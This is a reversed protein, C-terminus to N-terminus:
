RRHVPPPEHVTVVFSATSVNGSRDSAHCTVTTSGVTFLTGSAPACSVSPSRDVNDAASVSYKVIAGHSSTTSVVVDKPTTLKPAITDKLDERLDEPVVVTTTKISSTNGAADACTVGILYRREHRRGEPQADVDLSLPGTIRWDQDSPREPGRDDRDGPWRGSEDSSVSAIQCTPNATVLDSAVVALTVLVLRRDPPGLPQLSPTVSAIAPPTTDRVNVVFAGTSTNGSNDAATCTVTTSGIAFLSGSSPACSVSPSPDINDVAAAAYTVAAGQASTAEAVVVGAPLTLTPPVADKVVAFYTGTLQALSPSTQDNVTVQICAPPGAVYTQSSVPQWATANFWVIRDTPAPSGGCWNFTVQTFPTLPDPQAFVDFYASGASFGAAPSSAYVAATLIGAGEDTSVSLDTQEGSPDTSLSVTPDWSQSSGSTEVTTAQDTVFFQTVAQSPGSRNYNSVTVYAVGPTTLDEAPITVTLDTSSVYIAALSIGNWQVTTGMTDVYCQACQVPPCNVGCSPVFGSGHIDITVPGSGKVASTHDLSQISPGPNDVYVVENPVTIAYNAAHGNPDNFVLQPVYAGAPFSAPETEGVGFDPNRQGSLTACFLPTVFPQGVTQEGYGDDSGCVVPAPAVMVQISASATSYNPTASATARLTQPGVGNMFPSPSYTIFGPPAPGSGSVSATEQAGSLFRDYAMPAPSTPWTVTQTGPLVTMTVDAAAAAYYDTAAAFVHLTQMGGNLVAGLAPTYTLAGTAQGGDGSVTANLRSADLAQPYTLSAPANWTIHQAGPNVCILEATSATTYDISDAPTFSAAINYCGPALVTGLAPNYTFTGPVNATVFMQDESLPTPYSPSPPRQGFTLTPTAQTITITGPVFDIAYNQSTLGGPTIGHPGVQAAADATTMFTLSGGLAAASEGNVFGQYSVPYPTFNATGYVRTTNGAKVTLAAPTVSLTGTTYTIDYASSSLGFPTVTYTGVPSAATASTAYGLVGTIQDETGPALGTYVPAPLPNPSGYPRSLPATAVVLAGKLVTLQGTEFDVFYNAATLGSAIVSYQGPPTTETATTQFVPTGTLASPGDGNRFGQYSLTFAPNPQGFLKTANNPTVILNVPVIQITTPVYTITYNASTLGGLTVPYTGAGTTVDPASFALTGGLVQPGDNLVFGSYTASFAPNPDGYRRGQPHVATVTLPVPLVTLTGPIYVVSYNPSRLGSALITYAGASSTDVATTSFTLTGALGSADDNGHFGSYSVSFEPNAQGYNKEASSVSVTLRVANVTLTGPLFQIAYNTSAVGSPAISYTGGAFHTSASPTFQLTGSLVSPTEGLVFGGYSVAFAPTDGYNITANDAQITLPAPAVTLTGPRIQLNYNAASVNGSLAVAYQGAPSSDTAGTSFQWNGILVSQDEGPLFGSYTVMGATFAPNSQGYTKTAAPGIVVLPIKQITVTGPLFTIDYALSSVGFPTMTHAGAAPRISSADFLFQVTGQLASADQGLVFGAYSATAQPVSDGYNLTTSSATITLPAKDITLTAPHYTIAYNAAPGDKPTLTYTGPLSADTAPTVVTAGATAPTDAAVLGAYQVPYSAPYGYHRTVDQATISLPAKTITLAGPAFAIAYNTSSLGAPTLQYQGAGTNVDPATFTLVGGLATADQNLVFGGYTAQFVPNPAGYMRTADLATVTLPAPTVSLTGARNILVTFNPSSVGPTVVYSGVDSSPTGSTTFTLAARVAATEADSRTNTIQVADAFSPLPSGYVKTAGGMTLVVAWPTITLTGPTFTVTYNRPAQALAIAYMGVPSQDTAITTLTLGISDINDHNRFQNADSARATFSPNQSGYVKTQDNAVVTLPAPTVTLTGPVITITYDPCNQSPVLSHAGADIVVNLTDSPVNFQLASSNHLPPALQGLVLGSYQVTFLPTRDGYIMTADNATITLPAPTITMTASTVDIEIDYNAASLNAAVGGIPYTGVDAAAAITNFFPRDTQVVAPTDGNVFGSYTFTPTPDPAGYVRTVSQLTATLPVRAIAFSYSSIPAPDYVDNGDQTMQLEVGGVGTMHIQGDTIVAPGSLVQYSVPLGSSAVAALPLTDGYHINTTLLPATEITQQRKSVTVRRYPAAVTGCANSGVVQYYGSNATTANPIDLTDGTRGPLDIWTTGDTSYQWQMTTSDRSLGNHSSILILDQGVLPNGGQIQGVVPAQGVTLTASQSLTENVFVDFQHTTTVDLHNPDVTVSLTPLHEGTLPRGDMRWQYVLSTAAAAVNFRVLTPFCGTVSAPQMTITTPVFQVDINKTLTVPNYDTSDGPEFRLQEELPGSHAAITGPFPSFFYTGTVVMEQGNQDLSTAYASFQDTSTPIGFPLPAPNWTVVPTAKQTQITVTTDTIPWRLLDSPVFHAHLGFSTGGPYPTGPPVPHGYTVTYTFAGDVAATADYQAPGPGATDPYTLPAPTWTITPASVWLPTTTSVPLQVTDRPVFTVSLTQLGEPLITGAAPTYIFTGDENATANLQDFGLAAGPAIANPQKWRVSATGPGGAMITLTGDAALVAVDARNDGTLEAIAFQLPQANPLTVPDSFTGDGQSYYVRVLASDAVILDDVADGNFDAAVIAAGAAGTSATGGSCAAGSDTDFPGFSVATSGDDRVTAVDPWGNGDFDGAAIRDAPVASSIRTLTSFNGAGDGSLLIMQTRSSGLVALDANGDLDFDGVVATGFTDTGFAIVSAPGQAFLGRGNGLWTQVTTTSPQLVAIDLYGDGNFDALAISTGDINNSSPGQTLGNAGGFFMEVVGPLTVLVDTYGDGNFDGADIASPTQPTAYTHAPQGLPVDAVSIGGDVIAAVQTAHSTFSGLVFRQAGANVSSAAAFTQSPLALVAHWLDGSTSAATTADGTYIATLTHSGARLQRMPITATSGVLPASGLVVAGDLFEVSGTATGAPTRTVTAVLSSDDGLGSQEGSTSDLEITSTASETVTLLFDTSGSSSIATGFYQGPLLDAILPPSTGFGNADTVFPASRTGDPFHAGSIQFTGSVNAQVASGSTAQVIVRDSFTMGEGASIQRPSALSLATGGHRVFFGGAFGDVDNSSSSGAVNGSFQARYGLNVTGNQDDYIAGGLASGPRGPSGSSVIFNDGDPATAGAAGGSARNQLFTTNTIEVDGDKVFVAGGMGAGGGGAGGVYTTSSALTCVLKGGEMLGVICNQTEGFVGGSGGGNEGSLYDFQGLPRLSGGGGGGLGFPTPNRADAIFDGGAGGGFAGPTPLQSLFAGSGGSGDVVGAAGGAGANVPSGAGGAHGDMGGGGGSGYTASSDIAVSNGGTGGAVANNTFLDQDFVVTGGPATVFVAGGMGAAGGGGAFGTGGNGGANFGHFFTVGRIVVGGSRIVLLRTRQQGDLQVSSSDEGGGDIMLPKTIEIPTNLQIVPRGAFTITDGPQADAVTQRLTGPGADAASTVVRVVAPAQIFFSYRASPGPSALLAHTGAAFSSSVTTLQIFGDGLSTWNGGYGGAVSDSISQPNGSCTTTVTVSTGVLAPNPAAAFACTVTQTVSQRLASTRSGFTADGNYQATIAHTGPYLRPRDWRAVGDVLSFTATQRGGPNTDSFTVTGTPQQSADAEGTVAAFFSMPMFADSPNSSSTIRVEVSHRVHVVVSAEASPHTGDGPYTAHITHAGLALPGTTVSAAGSSLPASGVAISGDTFTVTGTADPVTTATLTVVEGVGSPNPTATVGFTSGVLVSLPDGAASGVILDARGDGNLETAAVINPTVGSGEAVPSGFGGNAGFLVSVGPTSGSVTVLDLVGDGDVDTAAISVPSIAAYRAAAGFGGAGDGTLVSVSGDTANATAVDAHGDGNFDAVTIADLGANTVTSLTVPAAFTGDGNGAFVSVTGDDTGVVLDAHGDGNLDVAGMARPAAHTTVPELIEPVIGVSLAVTLSNDAATVVFDDRGDGNLDVLGLATPQAGLTFATPGSAFTGDGRGFLQCVTSGDTYVIDMRGDGNLDGVAIQGPNTVQVPTAVTLQGNAGGLLVQVLRPAPSGGQPLAVVDPLGDGNFDAVAIGAGAMAAYQIPTGFGYSRVASMTITQPASISPDDAADGSYRATVSRVGAPLLATTLAAQGGSVASKGLMTVGDYFTVAGTATSPSVAATLTVAQGLTATPPGALTIATAGPRAAIRAAGLVLMCVAVAGCLRTLFTARM